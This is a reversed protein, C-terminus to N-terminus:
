AWSRARFLPTVHAIACHRPGGRASTPKPTQRGSVGLVGTGSSNKSICYWTRVQKNPGM